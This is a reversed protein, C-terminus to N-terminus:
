RTSPHIAAASFTASLEAARLQFPSMSKRSCIGPAISRSQMEQEWRVIREVPDADDAGPTSQMVAVTMDALASYLDDRLAAQALSEWRDERRLRTIRELLDVVGLRDHAAYYM